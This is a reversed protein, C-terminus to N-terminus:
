SWSRAESTQAGGCLSVLGTASSRGKKPTTRRPKVYILTTRPTPDASTCRLSSVASSGADSLLATRSSWGMPPGLLKFDRFCPARRRTGVMLVQLKQGGYDKTGRVPAFSSSNRLGSVTSPAPSHCISGATASALAGLDLTPRREEYTTVALTAIILCLGMLLSAWRRRGLFRSHRVPNEVFLYTLTALLASVLLLLVNDWAPLTTVGRSQAAIELIPWHWLYLSFSILALFPFPERRLLQEVGWKPASAGAAIVLGTALTPIAVLAGPYDDVPTLTVSAVLIVVLGVWSAVAAWAQPIRQLQRGYVAILGGLALEWSRVFLSFYASKADAATFAISYAYSFVIVAALFITIRTRFSGRRAWWGMLLFVAPYVIYFQEEVGLSWYNLLPSPPAQSVLYNTDTAQYHVNGLLAHGM